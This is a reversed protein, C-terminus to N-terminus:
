PALPPQISRTSASGIRSFATQRPSPPPASIQGALRTGPKGTQAPLPARVQDPDLAAFRTRAISSLRFRANELIASGFDCEVLYSDSFDAYSLQVQQATVLALDTGKLMAHDLDLGLFTLLELNRVGSSVLLTMLHGRKPSAPRDILYTGDPRDQWGFHKAMRAYGDGLDARRRQLAFGMGDTADESHMGNDIFRYPLLALSISTVRLVLSRDLDTAPDLVNFPRTDDPGQALAAAQGLDAAIQTIEVALAANRAAEALQVDTQLM